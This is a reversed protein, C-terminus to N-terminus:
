QKADVRILQLYDSEYGKGVAPLETISFGDEREM